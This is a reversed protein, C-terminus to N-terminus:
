IICSIIRLWVLVFFEDCFYVWMSWLVFIKYNFNKSLGDLLCYSLIFKFWISSLCFM